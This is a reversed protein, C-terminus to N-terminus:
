RARVHSLQEPAAVLSGYVTITQHLEQANATGTVIGVQQAMDGDIHSSNEEGHEHEDEGEDEKGPEHHDVHDAHAKHDGDEHHPAHQETAEHEHDHEDESSANIPLASLLLVPVFLMGFISTKSKPKLHSFLTTLGKM